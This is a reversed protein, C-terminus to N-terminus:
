HCHEKSHKPKNCQSYIVYTWRGKSTKEWKTPPELLKYYENTDGMSEECTM